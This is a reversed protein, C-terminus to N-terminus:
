TGGNAMINGGVEVDVRLEVVFICFDAQCCFVVAM